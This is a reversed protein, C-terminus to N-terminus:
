KMVLERGFRRFLLLGLLVSTISWLYLYGLDVGPVMHYHPAFGQRILELGHAIPNIMLLDRYVPPITALPWIAGSVLYLPMMVLKLIHETEPVLEMLVSAILGYGLGCLWLGFVAALVLLPDSPIIPHTLMSAAFLIVLSAIAMLFAELGARVIATDFPKVQRYAFLPGNSDVGHMTQIATRRFLFFGLMGVIVWTVTDIGGVVRLGFGAYLFSLFGIHMIPEMLLWLWAARMDFLRDLAERLFIARWVAATVALPSRVATGAAVTM